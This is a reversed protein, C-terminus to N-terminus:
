ALAGLTAESGGGFYADCKLRGLEASIEPLRELSGAVHRREIALNRGEVFGLEALREVFALNYPEDFSASLSLWGIRQGRPSPQGRVWAPAVAAASGITLLLRRRTAM